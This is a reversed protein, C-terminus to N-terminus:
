LYRGAQFDYPWGGMLFDSRTLATGSESMARYEKVKNTFPHNQSTEICHIIETWIDDSWEDPVDAEWVEMRLIKVHKKM